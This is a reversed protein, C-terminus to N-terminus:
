QNLLGYSSARAVAELKSHADLKQLVSHVHSRVTTVSVTLQAAIDGNTLGQAMMTLVQKERPTLAEQLRIREAEQRPRQRERKLLTALTVAPILMEGAAAGRVATAVETMLARSKLLFASAGAEIAALLVEESTDATLIVVAVHPLEERIATAAQVGTGDPLHYDILVVDPMKQGAACRAEAVSGASGVVSLDDERGLVAELGESLVPHDEVILVRIPKTV